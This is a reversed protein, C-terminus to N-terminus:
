VIPDRYPVVRDSLEEELKILSREILSVRDVVIDCTRCATAVCSRAIPGQDDGGFLRMQMQSQRTQPM